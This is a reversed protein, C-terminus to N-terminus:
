SLSDTPCAVQPVPQRHSLSGPSCAAQPVSYWHSLSDTLCAVLPCAVQPCAVQTCAVQAVPQRYSLNDTAQPVSQRHSLNDTPCAVKPAPEWHSLCSYSLSVKQSLSGSPSAKLRVPKQPVSQRHSRHFMSSTRYLKSVGKQMSHSHLVGARIRISPFLLLYHHLGGGDPDVQGLLQLPDELIPNM